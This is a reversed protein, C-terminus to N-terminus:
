NPSRAAAVENRFLPLNDSIKAKNWAAVDLHITKGNLKNAIDQATENTVGLGSTQSLQHKNQTWATTTTVSSGVIALVAFTSIIRKM